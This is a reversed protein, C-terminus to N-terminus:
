VQRQQRKMSRYLFQNYEWQLWGFLIVGVLFAIFWVLLSPFSFDLWHALAQELSLSGSTIDYGVQLGVFFILFVPMFLVGQLIVYRAKGRKQRKEWWRIFLEAKENEPMFLNM